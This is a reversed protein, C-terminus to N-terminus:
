SLYTWQMRFGVASGFLEATRDAGGWGGRGGHSVM